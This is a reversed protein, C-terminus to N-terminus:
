LLKFQSTCSEMKHEGWGVPIEKSAETLEMAWMAVDIVEMGQDEM